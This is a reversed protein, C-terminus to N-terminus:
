KTFILKSGSTWDYTWCFHQSFQVLSSQLMVLRGHSAFGRNLYWKSLCMNCNLNRKSILCVNIYIYLFVSFMLSLCILSFCISPTIGLDGPIICFSYSTQMYLCLPTPLPLLGLTFFMFHVFPTPFCVFMNLWTIMYSRFKFLLYIKAAHIM